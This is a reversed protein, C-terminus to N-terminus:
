FTEVSITEVSATEVDLIGINAANLTLGFSEFKKQNTKILETQNQDFRYIYIRLGIHVHITKILKIQNQGLYM